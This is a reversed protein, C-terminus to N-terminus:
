DLKRFAHNPKIQKNLFKGVSASSLMDNFTEELVDKYIYVAGGRFQVHLENDEHGVAVINSSTVEIMNIM